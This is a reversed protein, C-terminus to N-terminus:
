SLVALTGGGIVHVDNFGANKLILAAQYSRSGRGCIIVTKKNPDLNSINDRVDNFPINFYIERKIEEPLPWPAGAAEEIERVDLWQKVDDYVNGPPLFSMGREQERVIGAMEQLPDLVDAYPPSYAHELKLLNDVSANQQLYCSFVDLRRCIDGFGVIQLGLLKYDDGSYIMKMTIRKTEPYYDPKDVFTGWVVKPNLGEKKALDYTIGVAGVNIDFVKVVFSGGINPFEMNDGAINEAIFRGHRNALSGMPWYIKKGTIRNSLEICDGGAFISEDSTRLYKDVMIGGTSGIKLGCEKALKSNPIVGPCLFVFDVEINESEKQNIIIKDDEAKIETVERELQFQVDQRKLEREVIQAMESDLVDPLLSKEKEILITEIGWMGGVAEALECGIFGGGIIATRGIKGTEAMQRFQKADEPKTFFRIRPDDSFPFDPIAPVSGTALVLIDYPKEFEKGSELEVAHIVKQNRDIKTVEVGPIFDFGKSKKYFEPTKPTGYPTFTLQEFSNVDGSAFFPLGCTSFSPHKEKQYLTIEADPLRRALTAATKPGAAKGGVIIIRSDSKTTM